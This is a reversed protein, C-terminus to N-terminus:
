VEGDCGGREVSARIGASSSCVEWVAREGPLRAGDGAEALMESSDQYGRSQCSRAFGGRVDAEYDCGAYEGESREEHVGCEELEDAAM